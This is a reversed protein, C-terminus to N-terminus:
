RRGPNGRRLAPRALAARPEAPAYTRARRERADDVRDARGDVRPAGAPEVAPRARRAHRRLLRGDGRLARSGRRLEGDGDARPVHGPPEARRRREPARERGLVRLDAKRAERPPRLRPLPPARDPKPRPVDRPRRRRPPRP